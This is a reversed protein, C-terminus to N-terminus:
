AGTGAYGFYQAEVYGTTDAVSPTFSIRLPGTNYAYTTVSLTNAVVNVSDLEALSGTTSVRSVVLTGAGDFLGFVTVGTAAPHPEFPASPVSLAGGTDELTVLRARPQSIAM